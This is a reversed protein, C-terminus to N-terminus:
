RKKTAPAHPTPSPAAAGEAKLGRSMLDDVARRADKGHYLVLEMQESIPMEIGHRRALAMVTRANRVGEAVTPQGREIEAAKVGQALSEGARRNRSLSGTCTLVLDGLGALGAFTGANGGCAVGLRSMESLGRTVLAAVTKHGLGLGHVVGAAIAIVNKVQRKYM